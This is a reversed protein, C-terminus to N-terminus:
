RVRRKPRSQSVRSRPRSRLAAHAIAFTGSCSTDSNDDRERCILSSFSRRIASNMSLCPLCGELAVIMLSRAWAVSAVRGSFTPDTTRRNSACPSECSSSMRDAPSYTAKPLHNSFTPSSDACGAASWSWGPSCRSWSRGCSGVTRASHSSHVRVPLAGGTPKETKMVRLSRRPLSASGASCCCM